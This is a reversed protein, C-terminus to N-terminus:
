RLEVKSGLREITEDVIAKEIRRRREQDIGFSRLIDDIMRDALDRRGLSGHLDAISGWLNM